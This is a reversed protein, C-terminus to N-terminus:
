KNKKEKRCAHVEKVIEKLPLPKEKVRVAIESLKPLTIKKIILTDGEIFWALKDSPKFVTHLSKPMVLIGNKEIRLTQM